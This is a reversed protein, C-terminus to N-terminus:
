RTCQVLRRLLVAVSWNLLYVVKRHVCVCLLEKASINGPVLLKWDAPVSLKATLCFRASLLGKPIFYIETGESPEAVGSRNKSVYQEVLQSCFCM